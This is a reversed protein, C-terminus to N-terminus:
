AAIANIKPDDLRQIAILKGYIPDEVFGVVRAIINTGELIGVCGQSFLRQATVEWAEADRVTSKINYENIPSM